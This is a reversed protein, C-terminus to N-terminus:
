AGAMLDRAREASARRALRQAHAAAREEEVRQKKAARDAVARQRTVDQVAEAAPTCARQVNAPLLGHEHLVVANHEAEARVQERQADTAKAVEAYTHDFFAQKRSFFQARTAPDADRRLKKESPWTLLYRRNKGDPSSFLHIVEGDPRYFGVVKEGVPLRDDPTPPVFRYKRGDKEFSFSSDSAIRKMECNDEYFPVMVAPPPACFRGEASLRAKRENRTEPRDFLEIDEECLRPNAHLFDELASLPRPEIALGRPRWEIVREFGECEHDPKDHIRALADFTERWLQPATLYPTIVRARDEAPLQVIANDLKAMLKERGYDLAPAHDRDKGQQGRLHGMENKLIGHFGEHGAKARSNGAKREEWAAVFEGEMSSYGVIIQGESVEYLWQAQARSMTATGRECLLHMKWDLPWGYREILIAVSFLFDRRKLKDWSGDNKPTRPRQIFADPVYFSCSMEWFGFQLARCKGHGPVYLPVDLEVDDGSIYELWRVGDRTGPIYPLVARAAHSGYRVMEVVAPEIPVARLNHDLLARPLYGACPPPCTAFGPIAFRADGTRWWARWQAQCARIAPAFKRQNELLKARVWEQTEPALLTGRANPFRSGDVLWRWDRGAKKWADFITRLHQRSWGPRGPQAVARCGQNPNPAAAIRLMADNLERVAEQEVFDYTHFEARDADDTFHLVARAGGGCNRQPLTLLKM